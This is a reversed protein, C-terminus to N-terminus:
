MTSDVPTKVVTSFHPRRGGVKDDRLSRRAPGGSVELTPGLLDDDRSRGSIGRHEHTTDVQIRVVGAVLDDGICGACGVAQSREGLDNVVIEADDLTQHGGDM